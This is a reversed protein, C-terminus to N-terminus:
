GQCCTKRRHAAGVAPANMRRDARDRTPVCTHARRCCQPPTPPMLACASPFFTRLLKLVLRYPLARRVELMPQTTSEVNLTAVADFAGLLIAASTQHRNVHFQLIHQRHCLEYTWWGQTMYICDAGLDDLLTEM